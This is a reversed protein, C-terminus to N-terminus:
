AKMSASRRSGGIKMLCRMGTCRCIGNVPCPRLSGQMYVFALVGLHQYAPIVRRVLLEEHQGLDVAM